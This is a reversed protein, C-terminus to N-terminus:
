QNKHYILILIYYFCLTALFIAQGILLIFDQLVIFKLFLLSVALLRISEGVLSIERSAKLSLLNKIQIINDIIFALFALPTGYTVIYELIM